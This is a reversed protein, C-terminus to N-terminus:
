NLKYRAKKLPMTIAGSKTKCM